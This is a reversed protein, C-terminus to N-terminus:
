TGLPGVSENAITQSTTPHRIKDALSVVAGAAAGIYPPRYGHEGRARRQLANACTLANDTAQDLTTPTRSRPSSPCVAPPTTASGDAASISAKVARM